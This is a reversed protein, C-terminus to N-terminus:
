LNYLFDYLEKDNCEAKVVVSKLGKVFTYVEDAEKVIFSPNAKLRALQYKFFESM